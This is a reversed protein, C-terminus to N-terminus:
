FRPQHSKCTTFVGTLTRVFNTEQAALRVFCGQPLADGFRNLLLSGKYLPCPPVRSHASSGVEAPSSAGGAAKRMRVALPWPLQRCREHEPCPLRPQCHQVFLQSCPSCRTAGPHVFGHPHEPVPCPLRTSCRRTHVWCGFAFLRLDAAQCVVCTPVIHLTHSVQGTHGQGM